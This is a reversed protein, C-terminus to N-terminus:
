RLSRNSYRREELVKETLSRRWSIRYRSTASVSHNQLHGSSLLASEDRNEREHLYERLDNSLRAKFVASCLPKNKMDEITLTTCRHFVRGTSMQSADESCIKLDLSFCNRLLSAGARYDIM